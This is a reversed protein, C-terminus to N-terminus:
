AAESLEDVRRQAQVFDLAGPEGEGVDDAGPHVQGVDAPPLLEAPDGADVLDVFNVGKVVRGNTVDLCPIVRAVQM